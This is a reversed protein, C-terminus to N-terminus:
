HPRNQM